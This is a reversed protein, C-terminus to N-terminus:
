SSGAQSLADWIGTPEKTIGVANEAGTVGAHLATDNANLIPGGKRSQYSGPAMTAGSQDPPAQSNVAGVQRALAAYDVGGRAPQSSIAGAKKALAAYDIQQGNPM